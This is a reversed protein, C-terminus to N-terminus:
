LFHQISVESLHKEEVQVTVCVNM